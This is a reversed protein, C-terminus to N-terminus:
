LYLQNELILENIFGRNDETLEQLDADILSTGDIYEASCAYADVFDPYDNGEIGDIEISGIDVEKNNVEIM